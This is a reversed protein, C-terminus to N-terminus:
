PTCSECRKAPFNEDLIEEFVSLPKISTLPLYQQYHTEWKRARKALIVGKFVGVFGPDSSPDAMPFSLPFQATRAQIFHYNLVRSSVYARAAHANAGDHRDQGAM